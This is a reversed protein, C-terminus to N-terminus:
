PCPRCLGASHKELMTRQKALANVVPTGPRRSQASDSNQAWGPATSCWTLSSPRPSSHIKVATTCCSTTRAAWSSRLPTYEDMAKKSDGVYPIYDRKHKKRPLLCSLDTVSGCVAMKWVVGAVCNCGHCIKRKGKCTSQQIHVYMSSRQHWTALM